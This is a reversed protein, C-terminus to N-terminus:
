SLSTVKPIFYVPTRIIRFFSVHQKLKRFAIGNGFTSMLINLIGSIIRYYILVTISKTFFSQPVGLFWHTNLSTLMHWVLKILLKRQYLQYIPLWLFLPIYSFWPCILCKVLDIIVDKMWESWWESLLYKTLTLVIGSYLRIVKNSILPSINM